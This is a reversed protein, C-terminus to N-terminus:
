SSKPPILPQVIRRFPELAECYAAHRELAPWRAPDFLDVHAERTFRIACATAIDAHGISEGFWFTTSRAARVPPGSV